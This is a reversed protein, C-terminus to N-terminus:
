EFTIQVANTLNSTSHPNEDRYWVQFNWCEGPLIPMADPLAPLMPEALYLCRSGDLEPEFVSLPIRVTEGGVCLMGQSGFPTDGMTASRGAVLIGSESRPLGHVRMELPGDSLRESGALVLTGYQGLSNPTQPHCFENGVDDYRVRISDIALSADLATHSLTLSSMRTGGETTWGLWHWGCTQPFDVASTLVVEGIQDRVTVTMSSGNTFDQAFWGGFSRVPEDFHFTVGSNGGFHPHLKALFGGISKSRVYCYDGAVMACLGKLAPGPSTIPGFDTEWVSVANGMAAGNFNEQIDGAFRDSTTVQASAPTAWLLSALILSSKLPTSM